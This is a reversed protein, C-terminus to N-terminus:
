EISEGSEPKFAAKRTGDLHRACDSHLAHRKESVPVRLTAYARLIDSRDAPASKKLALVLGILWVLQPVLAAVAMVVIGAWVVPGTEAIASIM